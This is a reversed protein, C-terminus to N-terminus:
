GKRGATKQLGVFTNRIADVQSTSAGQNALEKGTLEILAKIESRMEPALFKGIVEPTPNTLNLISEHTQLSAVREELKQDLEAHGTPTALPEMSMADTLSKWQIKFGKQTRLQGSFRPSFKDKAAIVAQATVIDSPSMMAFDECNMYYYAKIDYVTCQQWKLFAPVLPSEDDEFDVEKRGLLKDLDESVIPCRLM